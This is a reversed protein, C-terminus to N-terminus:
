IKYPRSIKPEGKNFFTIFLFIRALHSPKGKGTTIHDDANYIEAQYLCALPSIINNAHPNLFFFSAALALISCSISLMAEQKHRWCCSFFPLNEKCPLLGMRCSKRAKGKRKRRREPGGLVPEIGNFHMNQNGGTALVM